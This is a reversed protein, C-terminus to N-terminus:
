PKNRMDMRASIYDESQIQSITYKRFKIEVAISKAVTTLTTNSGIHDYMTYHLYYINTALMSTNGTSSDYRKLWGNTQGNGIDQTYTYTVTKSGSVSGSNTFNTPITLTLTSDSFSSIGYVARTDKAFYNVAERGGRHIEAYNGIACFGKICILYTSVTAALIMTGVAM